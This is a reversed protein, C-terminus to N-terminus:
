GLELFVQDILATNDGGDPNLGRFTLTHTGARVQFTDTTYVAYDTGSPTLTGLVTDDILVQFTQNSEQYNGRQAAGFGLTYSVALFDLM